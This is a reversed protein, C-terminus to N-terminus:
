ADGLRLVVEWARHWSGQATPGGGGGKPPVDGTCAPDACTAATPYQYPIFSPAAAAQVNASVFIHDFHHHWDAITEIWKTCCTTTNFAILDRM